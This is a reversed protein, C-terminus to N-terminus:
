GPKETVPEAMSIPQGLDADVSVSNAGQKRDELSSPTLIVAV